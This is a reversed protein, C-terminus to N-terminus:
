GGEEKDFGEVQGAISAESSFCRASDMEKVELGIAIEFWQIGDRWMACVCVLDGGFGVLGNSGLEWIGFFETGM